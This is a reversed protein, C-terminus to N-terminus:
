VSKSNTSNTPNMMLEMDRLMKEAEEDIDMDDVDNSQLADDIMEQMLGM